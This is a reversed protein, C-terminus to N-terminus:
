MTVAQTMGTVLSTPHILTHLLKNDNYQAVMDRMSNAIVVISGLTINMNTDPSFPLMQVTDNLKLDLDTAVMAGYIVSNYLGEDIFETYNMLLLNSRGYLFYNSVDNSLAFVFGNGITASAGGGKTLTKTVGTASLLSISIANAAIDLVPKPLIGLM